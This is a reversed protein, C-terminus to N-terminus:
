RQLLSDGESGTAQSEKATFQRGALLFRGMTRGSARSGHPRHGRGCSCRQLEPPHRQRRAPCEFLDLLTSQSHKYSYRKAMLVDEAGKLLEKRFKGVGAQMLQYTTLAQRAQVEAKIKAAEM